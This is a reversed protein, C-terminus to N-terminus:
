NPLDWNSEVEELLAMHHGRRAADAEEPLLDQASEWWSRLQQKLHPYQKCKKVLRRLLSPITATSDAAATIVSESEKLGASIRSLKRAAEGVKEAACPLPVTQEEELRLLMSQTAEVAKTLAQLITNTTSEEQLPVGDVTCTDRLEQVGRQLAALEVLLSSDKVIPLPHGSVVSTLRTLEM